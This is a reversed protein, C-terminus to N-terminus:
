SPLRNVAARRSCEGLQQCGRRSEFGCGGCHFHSSKLRNTWLALKRGHLDCCRPLVTTRGDPCPFLSARPVCRRLSALPRPQEMPVREGPDFASTPTHPIRNAVAVCRRALRTRSLVFPACPSSANNEMGISQWASSNPLSHGLCSEFRRRRAAKPHGLIYAEETLARRNSTTCTPPDTAMQCPHCSDGTKSGEACPACTGAVSM